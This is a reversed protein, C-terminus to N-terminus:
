LPPTPPTCSSIPPRQPPYPPDPNPQTSNLQTEFTKSNTLFEYIPNYGSTSNKNM